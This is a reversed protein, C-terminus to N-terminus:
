PAIDRSNKLTSTWAIDLNKGRVSRGNPDTLSKVRVIEVAGDLEKQIPILVEDDIAKAINALSSIWAETESQRSWEKVRLLMNVVQEAQLVHELSIQDGPLYMWDDHDTDATTKTDFPSSNAGYIPPHSLGNYGDLALVAQEVLEYQERADRASTALPALQANRSSLESQRYLLPDSVRRARSSTTGLSSTSLFENEDNGVLSLIAQRGRRTAAHAAVAHVLPILDLCQILDQSFGHHDSKTAAHWSRHHRTRVLASSSPQPSQFCASPIVFAALCCAIRALGRLFENKQPDDRMM